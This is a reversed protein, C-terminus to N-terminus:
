NYRPYGLCSSLAFYRSREATRHDWDQRRYSVKPGAWWRPDTPFNLQAIERLLDCSKLRSTHNPFNATYMRSLLAVYKLTEVPLDQLSYIRRCSRSISTSLIASPQVGVQVLIRSRAPRALSSELFSLRVPSRWFCESAPFNWILV